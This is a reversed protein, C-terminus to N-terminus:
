VEDFFAREVYCWSQPPRTIRRCDKTNLDYNKCETCYDTHNCNPHFERLEKPKDYKKPNIIFHAYLPKGKRYAELFEIPVCGSAIHCEPIMSINEYRKIRWVTFEGIVKGCGGHKKTEYCYHKGIPMPKTRWEIGKTKDFIRNTHPPNISTLAAKM